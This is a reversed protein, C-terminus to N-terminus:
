AMPLQKLTILCRELRTEDVEAVETKQGLPRPLTIALAGGLHERFEEIGHFVFRRGAPDRLELTDHWLPLGAQALARILRLADATPIFGLEAAYLLDLAIGIGVAEGHRLEHNSLSELKHAAWHGFDLPRANGQEFPDGATQIHALHLAACRVILAEMTERDREQLAAANMVLWDAFEQDKICAVKFAEAIGACWDRLSLTELFAFDNIVAAPAAFTGLFNKMGGLNIGNKVGVGSDNQGLVTTPLRILRVGRHILSAAFGVADLFAGGGVAVIHAHRSLRYQRALRIVKHPLDFSNKAEEGGPLVLPPQLLAMSRVHEAAYRTVREPLDPQAAVLGADLFCLCRQPAPEPGQRLLDALLRNAASFVDRTFFVRYALGVQTSLSLGQLSVPAPASLPLRPPVEM